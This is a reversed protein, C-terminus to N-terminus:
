RSSDKCLVQTLEGSQRNRVVIFESNPMRLEKPIMETPLKMVFGGDVMGVGPFAIVTIEGPRLCGLVRVPIRDHM